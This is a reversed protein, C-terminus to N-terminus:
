QSEILWFKKTKQKKLKSPELFILIKWAVSNHTKKIM